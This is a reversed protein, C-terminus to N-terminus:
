IPLVLGAAQRFGVAVGVRPALNYIKILFLNVGASSQRGKKKQLLSSIASLRNVLLLLPCGAWGQGWTVAAHSPPQLNEPSCKSGGGVSCLAPLLHLVPRFGSMALDNKFSNAPLLTDLQTASDANWQESSGHVLLPFFFFFLKTWRWLSWCNHIAGDYRQLLNYRWLLESYFFLKWERRKPSLVELRSSVAWGTSLLTVVGSENSSRIGEPSGAFLTTCDWRFADCFM